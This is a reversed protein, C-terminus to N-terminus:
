GNQIREKLRSALVSSLVIIGLDICLPPSHTVAGSTIIVVLLPRDMPQLKKPVGRKAVEGDEFVFPKLIKRMLGAGICTLGDFTHNKILADIEPKNRLRYAYIDDDGNLFRIVKIGRVEDDLVAGYLRVLFYLVNKLATKRKGSEIFEM